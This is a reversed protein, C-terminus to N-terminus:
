SIPANIIQSTRKIHNVSKTIKIMAMILAYREEAKYDLQGFIYVLILQNIEIPSNQFQVIM